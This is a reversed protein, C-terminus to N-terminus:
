PRWRLRPPGAPRHQHARLGQLPRRSRADAGQGGRPDGRLRQVAYLRHRDQAHRVGLLAHLAGRGHDPRLPGARRPRRRAHAAARRADPRQHRRRLGAGAKVREILRQANEYLEAQDVSTLTYQYAAAGGRSGIRLNQLPVPFARIGPIGALSRRLRNQVDSITARDKRESRAKLQVFISGRNLTPNFFSQQVNSNVYLVDPDARIREAVIRQRELMAQFAIDPAAETRVIIISTDETPLFGKKVAGFAWVTAVITGLTLLLMLWPVRLSADLTVRYGRAM